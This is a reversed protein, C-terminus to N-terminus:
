YLLLFIQLILFIDLFLNYEIIYFFIIIIVYANLKLIQKRFKFDHIKVRLM